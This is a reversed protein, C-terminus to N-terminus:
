ADKGAEPRTTAYHWGPQAMDSRVLYEDEAVDLVRLDVDVVSMGEAPGLRGLAGQLPMALQSCGVYRCGQEDVADPDADAAAAANVFAVACANECARAVCVADLFLRESDRGVADGAGGPALALWFAPVVLM